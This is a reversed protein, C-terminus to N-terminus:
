RVNHFDKPLYGTYKKFIKSFHRSDKYGVLEAIEYIKYKGSKLFEKAKSVKIQTLADIFTEGTEIKFLFSLYNPSVYNEEATTVLTAIRYNKGMYNLCNSILIKEKNKNTRHAYDYMDGITDLLYNKMKELCDLKLIVEMDFPDNDTAQYLEHCLRIVRREINIMFVISSNIIIKRQVHSEKGFTDILQHICREMETKNHNKIAEFLNEEIYFPYEYDESYKMTNNFCVICKNGIYFSHRLAIYAKKYSDGLKEWSKVPQGVGVTIDVAQETIIKEFFTKIRMENIKQFVVGIVNEKIQFFVAKNMMNKQHVKFIELIHAMNESKGEILALTPDEIGLQDNTLLKQLLEVSSKVDAGHIIKLVLEDVYTQQGIEAIEKIFIEQKKLEKENIIQKRIKKLLEIFDPRYIPKVIYEMVKEKIARRAYEFDSHASLIVIKIDPYYRRLWASVDLGDMQPMGIDLLVMDPIVESIIEIGSKGNDAEGIIKYGLKKWPISHKMGDRILEDDDIIIIRIPEM